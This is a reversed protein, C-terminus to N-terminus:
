ADLCRHWPPGAERDFLEYHYVGALQARLDQQAALPDAGQGFAPLAPDVALALVTGDKLAILRTPHLVTCSSEFVLPELM